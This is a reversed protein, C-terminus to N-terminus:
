DLLDDLTMVRDIQVVDTMPVKFQQAPEFQMLEVFASTQRVLRKVMVMRASAGDDAEDWDGNRRLYVVVSDGSRPPRKREALIISGHPHLPDMSSGQMYLGYADARGNLITPRKRYEVIEGTNLNTQEIAHGDLVREAGLATGYVPLDQVMRISSSGELEFPKANSIVRDTALDHIESAPIGHREFAQGLKAAVRLALPGDFERSFYRQVGSRGKYDAGAAIEDLSIGARDKLAILKEGITAMTADDCPTRVNEVNVLTRMKRVNHGHCICVDDCLAAADAGQRALEAM